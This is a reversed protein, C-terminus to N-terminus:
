HANKQYNVQKDNVVYFEEKMSKGMKTEPGKTLVGERNFISARQLKMTSTYKEERLM